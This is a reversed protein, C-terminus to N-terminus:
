VRLTAIRVRFDASLSFKAGHCLLSRDADVVQGSLGVQFVCDRRCDEFSQRLNAFRPGVVWKFEDGVVNELVVRITLKLVFTSRDAVAVRLVFTIFFISFTHSGGRTALSGQCSSRKM